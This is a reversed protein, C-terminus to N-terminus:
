KLMNELASELTNDLRKRLSRKRSFPKDARKNTLGLHLPKDKSEIETLFQAHVFSCLEISVIGLLLLSKM